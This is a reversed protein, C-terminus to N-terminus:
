DTRLDARLDEVRTAQLAGTTDLDNWVEQRHIRKDVLEFRDVFRVGRFAVGHLNEGELTGQVVVVHREVDVDIAGFRKRVRRYRGSAAAQQDQLDTHRADGPFVMVADEALYGSAEELDREGVARLYALVTATLGERTGSM